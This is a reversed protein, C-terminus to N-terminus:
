RRSIFYYVAFLMLGVAALLPLISILTEIAAGFQSGEPITITGFVTLMAGLIVAGVLLGVLAGVYDGVNMKM